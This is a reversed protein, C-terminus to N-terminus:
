NKGVNCCACGSSIFDKRDIKQKETFNVWNWYFECDVRIKCSTDKCFKMEKNENEM